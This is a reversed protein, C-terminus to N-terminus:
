EETWDFVKIEFERASADAGLQKAATKKVRARTGGFVERPKGAYTVWVPVEKRTKALENLYAVHDSNQSLPISITGLDNNTESIIPVGQADVKESFYDEDKEGNVMDGEDFNNIYRDGVLITCLMADYSGM